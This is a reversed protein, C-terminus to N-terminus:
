SNVGGASLLEERSPLVAADDVSTLRAMEVASTILEDLAKASFDSTSASAELKEIEGLRVEVSFDTNELAIAEAETAGRRVAKSVIDSLFHTSIQTTM